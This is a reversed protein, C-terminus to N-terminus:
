NLHQPLVERFVFYCIVSGEFGEKNGVGHGNGSGDQEECLKWFDRFLSTTLLHYIKLYFICITYSDENTKCLPTFNCVFMLLLLEWFSDKYIKCYIIRPASIVFLCVFAFCLFYEFAM